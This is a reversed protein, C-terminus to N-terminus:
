GARAETTIWSTFAAIAPQEISSQPCVLYYAYALPVAFSPAAGVTITQVAKRSRVLEVAEALADFGERLKALCGQAADTLELGRAMRKFLPTGLHHELAKIRHSIAGPTVHLEAAAKRFSLDPRARHALEVHM